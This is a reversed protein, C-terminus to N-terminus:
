PEALKAKLGEYYAVLDNEDPGETIRRWVKVFPMAQLGGDGYPFVLSSDFWNEDFRWVGGLDRALVEGVYCGNYFAVLRRHEDPTEADTLQADSARLLEEIVALSAASYDLIHGGPAVRLTLAHAYDGINDDTLRM